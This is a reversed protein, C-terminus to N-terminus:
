RGEGAELISMGIGIVVCVAALYLPIFGLISLWFPIEYGSTWMGCDVFFWIAWAVVGIVGAGTIFYRLGELVTKM